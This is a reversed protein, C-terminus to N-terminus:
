NTSNLLDVQAQTIKGNALMEKIINTRPDLVFDVEDQTYPRGNGTNRILEDKAKIAAKIKQKLETVTQAQQKAQDIENLTNNQQEQVVQVLEPSMPSVTDAPKNDAKKNVFFYYAGGAVVLLALTFFIIAIKRYM